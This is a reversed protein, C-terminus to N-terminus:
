GAGKGTSSACCHIWDVLAFTTSSGKIPDPVVAMAASTSPRSHIPISIALSYQLSASSRILAALLCYLFHTIKKGARGRNVLTLQFVAGDRGESRGVVGAVVVVWGAYGEIQRVVIRM